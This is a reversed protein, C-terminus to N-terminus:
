EHRTSVRVPDARGVNGAHQETAPLSALRPSRTRARTPARPSHGRQAQESAPEDQQERAAPIMSEARDSLAQGRLRHGLDPDRRAARDARRLPGARARHLRRAQRPPHKGGRRGDAAPARRRAHHRAARRRALNARVAGSDNGGGHHPECGGLRTAVTRGTGDHLRLAPLPARRSAGAIGSAGARRRARGWASRPTCIALAWVYFPNASVVAGARAIRQIQDPRSYGFHHLAFRHDERPHERQLKCSRRNRRRRQHSRPDPLGRDLLPSRGRTARRAGDAVRGPPRGLYGPPGLQM